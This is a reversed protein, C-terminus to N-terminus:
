SASSLCSGRRSVLRSRLRTSVGPAYILPRACGYFHSIREKRFAELQMRAGFGYLPSPRHQTSLKPLNQQISAEFPDIYNLSTVKWQVSAPM